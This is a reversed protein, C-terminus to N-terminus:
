SLHLLTTLGNSLERHRQLQTRPCPLHTVIQRDTFQQLRHLLMDPLSM